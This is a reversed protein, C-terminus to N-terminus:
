LFTVIKKRAEELEEASAKNGHWSELGDGIYRPIIHLHAHFVVQGAAAGNNMGLNFGDAHMAGKVKSAVKKVFEVLDEEETKPFDLLNECHKKPIVLTHGKSIPMIDLFALFDKNEAVKQCPITGSAIKCFLCDKM